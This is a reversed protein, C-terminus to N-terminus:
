PLDAVWEPKYGFQEVLVEKYSRHADLILPLHCGLVKVPTKWDGFQNKLVEEYGIPVKFNLYEFPVTLYSDYVKSTWRGRLDEMNFSYEGCQKCKRMDNRAFAWERIRWVTRRGLVVCIARSFFFKLWRIAGCKELPRLSRSMLGCILLFIMKTFWKGLRTDPVGDIPFIDIGIGMNFCNKFKTWGPDIACTGPKRVQAFTSTRGPDTYFTQLLYPVRLGEKDIIRILKDYDKRPMDLDIDDDWPIFGKHRIAGLLTGGALTYNLGYKDCIRVIEETIDLMEKWAEKMKADVYYGDRTEPELFREKLKKQEETM